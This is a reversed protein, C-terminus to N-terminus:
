ATRTVTSAHVKDARLAAFTAEVGTAFSTQPIWGLERQALSIDLVSIAVDFNRAGVYEVKIHPSGEFSRLTDLIDNLSKGIGSGINVCAPGGRRKGAAILAEVVDGIYIYDRIVSGDGFITIPEGKAMHSAFTSIAGFNRGVTQGPGYPNGIRLSLCDVNWLDRYLTLYKEVSLKSVGYACRPRTPHQEDAPVSTLTGYVTGGSSAFVIRLGPRNKTAELLLIAPLINQSADALPDDNSTQPLTSWAFHYVTSVQELLENWGATDNPFLRWSVLKHPKHLQPWRSVAIVSEGRSVLERLLHKGIFGTAGTILCAM